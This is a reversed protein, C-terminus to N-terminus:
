GEEMRRGTQNDREMRMGILKDNWGGEHQNDRKSGGEYRIIGRGGEKM